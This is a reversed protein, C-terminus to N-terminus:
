DKIEPLIVIGCSDDENKDDSAQCFYKHLKDAASMADTLKPKVSIKKIVTEEDNIKNGDEDTWSIKHKNQVIMEERISRRMVATLFRLVESHDAIDDPMKEDTLRKLEQRIDTRSLLRKAASPDSYGAAEAARRSDFDDLYERCFKLQQENM